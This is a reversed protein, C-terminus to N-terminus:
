QRGLANAATTWRTDISARFHASRNPTSAHVSRIDFVIVDGARVGGRDTCLRADAACVGTAGSANNDSHMPSSCDASYARGLACHWHEDAGPHSLTAAAVVSHPANASASASVSASIAAAAAATRRANVFAVPLEEFDPSERAGEADVPADASHEFPQSAPMAARSLSRDTETEAASASAPVGCSPILRHSRACVALTGEDAAYAGLPIWCTYMRDAHVLRPPPPATAEDDDDDFSSSARDAACHFRYFDTHELTCEGGGGQIRVQAHVLPSLM